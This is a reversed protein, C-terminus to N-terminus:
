DYRAETWWQGSSVVLLWASGDTGVVQFRAHRRASTEDWWRESVPWPGAWADIPQASGSGTASRGTGSRGTGSRGTDSRGTDPCFSAPVGTLVGREDVDVPQGEATVVLAPRPTPLVTTPAPAPLTGPWPADVPWTPAPRDGWPVWTQRDGPGRGGGVVASVVAGHGLMSQVRSLARHVKEDPGTGWLGDAHAGIPDVEDPIFGVRVVASTLGADTVARGESALQWRVRDVLDAADFWRPHLWRREIGSGVETVVKIRVSTCVLGVHALDDVFHDAAARVGFAVQDVRDVPDDFEVSRVLDPPPTRAAVPHSDGGGALRHAHAGIPGFRNLVDTSSLTAFEGMTVLGLRRLLDALEPQGLLDVPLTSLFGASEGAAIVRIPDGAHTARAAQEAAFPGDACGARPTSVRGDNGGHGTSSHQRVRKLIAEAAARETGFYRSPGRARIACTGPRVLQVGPTIAEIATVVPEFVRADLASDYPLDVLEPCRSQADRLRQGRRVGDYRASASCALVRGRDFVAVPKDGTDNEQCAAVVPWDPYWVVLTRTLM